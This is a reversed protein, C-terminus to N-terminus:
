AILNRYMMRRAETRQKQMEQFSLMMQAMAHVHEPVRREPTPDPPPQARKTARPKKITTPEEYQTVSPIDTDVTMIKVKNKAGKPRGRGRKPVVPAIDEIINEQIEPNNEQFGPIEPNNIQNEQIEPNNEQNEQNEPIEQPFEQHIEQIEQIEQIEESSM